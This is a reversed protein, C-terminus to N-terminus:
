GKVILRPKYEKKGIGSKRNNNETSVKSLLLIMLMLCVKLAFLVSEKRKVLFAMM